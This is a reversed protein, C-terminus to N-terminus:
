GILAERRHEAVIFAETPMSGSLSERREGSLGDVRGLILDCTTGLDAQIVGPGDVVMGYIFEARSVVSEIIGVVLCVVRFKGRPKSDRANWVVTKGVNREASGVGYGPENM